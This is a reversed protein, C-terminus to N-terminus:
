SSNQGDYALELVHRDHDDKSDWLTARTGPPVVDNMSIAYLKQKELAILQTLTKDLPTFAYTIWANRSRTNMNGIMWADQVTEPLELQTLPTTLYLSITGITGQRPIPLWTVGKNDNMTAVRLESEPILIQLVRVIPDPPLRWKELHRNQRGFRSLATDAYQDTFGYQCNGDKHFSVKYIGGLCRVAVYVDGKPNGWMRWVGSRPGHQSGIALRFPKLPM